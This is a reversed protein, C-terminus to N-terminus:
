KKATNDIVLRLQPPRRTPHARLYAALSAAPVYRRRGDLVYAFTGDITRDRVWSYSRGTIAAVAHISLQGTDKATTSVQM